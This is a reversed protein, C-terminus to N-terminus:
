AACLFVWFFVEEFTGNVVAVLITSALSVDAFSFEIMGPHDSTRFPATVVAGILGCAFFLGVGLLTGRITPKPYLSKIDFNRIRLFLLAASALVLEVCVLWINRADSFRADPFGASVARISGFIPLGFCIITVVIAENLSLTSKPL